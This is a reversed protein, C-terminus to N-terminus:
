HKTKSASAAEKKSKQTTKLVKKKTTPKTKKAAPASTKAYEPSPKTEDMEKLENVSETLKSLKDHLDDLSGALKDFDSKGPVYRDKLTKEMIEYMYNKFEKSKKVASEASSAVVPSKLWLEFANTMSKEWSDYINKFYGFIYTEEETNKSSM